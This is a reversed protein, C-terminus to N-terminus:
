HPAVHSFDLSIFYPVPVVCVFPTHRADRRAKNRVVTAIGDFKLVVALQFCFVLAQIM